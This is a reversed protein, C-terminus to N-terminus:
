IGRDRWVKPVSGKFSLVTVILYAVYDDHQPEPFISPDKVNGSVEIDVTADIM